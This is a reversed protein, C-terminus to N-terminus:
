SRKSTSFRPRAPNLGGNCVFRAFSWVRSRTTAYYGRRWKTRCQRTSAWRRNINPEPVKRSILYGESATAERLWDSSAWIVVGRATTTTGRCSESGAARSQRFKSHVRVWKTLRDLNMYCSCGGAWTQRRMTTAVTSTTTTTTTTCLWDFLLWHGNALLAERSLNTQEKPLLVNRCAM